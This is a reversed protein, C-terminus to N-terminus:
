KDMGRQLGRLYSIEGLHQATHTVIISFISATTVEGFPKMDYKKDLDQPRLSMLYSVTKERVADYYAQIDKMERVPFANVQDVTYHAGAESEPMKLKEFWKDSTWIEPKSQLRTQIFSDESKALHFLLLGISNCGCSPRWKLEEFNLDKTARALGRKLGELQNLIYDKLEM